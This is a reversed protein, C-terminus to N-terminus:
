CQVFRLEGTQCFFKGAPLNQSSGWHATSEELDCTDYVTLIVYNNPVATMQKHYTNKGTLEFYLLMNHTHFSKLPLDVVSLFTSALLNDRIESSIM